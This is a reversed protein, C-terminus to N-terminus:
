KMKWPIIFLFLCDVSKVSLELSHRKPGEFVVRNRPVVHCLPDEEFRHGVTFDQPGEPFEGDVAFSSIGALIVRSLVGRPRIMRVGRGRRGVRRALHCQARALVLCM